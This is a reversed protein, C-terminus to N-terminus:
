VCLFPNKWGSISHTHINEFVNADYSLGRGQEIIMQQIRNNTLNIKIIQTNPVAVGSQPHFNREGRPGRIAQTRLLSKVTDWDRKMAHPLLERWVLGAEYGLVAYISAPQGTLKEFTKVFSQNPKSEDTRNWMMASYLSMDIHQFDSLIDPYAMTEIVVLPIKKHFGHSVWQQLFQTGEDGSFIAHVYPPLTTQLSAFFDTLDLPQKMNSPTNKKIVTSHINVGGAQAAGQYFAANLHYGAEYLTSVVHGGDGFHKQAWYGLAYQSQWLQHSNYFINEGLHEHYPIYEGMDFFFGVRRERDLSPLIEPITKMSILGSLVDVRDFNLLKQAAQTTIVSGGTHTYEQVFQIPSQQPSQVGMGIMWATTIHQAYFPYITSLPTLFGIKIPWSNMM